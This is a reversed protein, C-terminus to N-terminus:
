GGSFFYAGNDTAGSASLTHSIIQATRIIDDAWNHDYGLLQAKQEPTRSYRTPNFVEEYQMKEAANMMEFRDKIKEGFGTRGSYSIKANGKKGQKTTIVIVGNAGRSGYIATSAADKLVSMTEIDNPNLINLDSESVFVGDIVYLPQAKDGGKTNLSIAGRIKITATQGPKGNLATVDVGSAKGQLMNDVSTSPTLKGLNEGSVTTVNASSVERKRTNYGTVVFEDLGQAEEELVIDIQRTGSMVKREETKMGVFSFVLTQGVEVGISYGGDFDTNVGWKTGKVSVTAGILIVGSEDKVTGKVTIKEQAFSFHSVGGLFLLIVFWM